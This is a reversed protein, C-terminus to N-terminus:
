WSTGKSLRQFERNSIEMIDGNKYVFRVPGKGRFRYSYGNNFIEFDKQGVVILQPRSPNLNLRKRILFDKKTYNDLYIVGVWSKKHPVIYLKSKAVGKKDKQKPKVSKKAPQKAKTRKKAVKKETTQATKAQTDVAKAIAATDVALPTKNQDNLVTTDDTINYEQVMEKVMADLDLDDEKEGPVEETTANVAAAKPAPTTLTQSLVSQEDKHSGMVFPVARDSQVVPKQMKVPQKEATSVSANVNTGANTSVKNQADDTAELAKLNTKAKQLIDSKEDAIIAHQEAEVSSLNEESSRSSLYWIVGGLLLLGALWPIYQKWVFEDQNKAHVFLQQQEDSKHQAYYQLYKQRLEQLKVPYERELIQIFGLARVKNINAFDENLFAELDEENIFTKNSVKRLGTAKLYAVSEALNSPEKSQSEEEKAASQKTSEKKAASETKSTSSATRRTRRARPKPTETSKKQPNEESKKEDM